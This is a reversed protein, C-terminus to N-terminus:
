GTGHALLERAHELATTSDPSGSLMRALEVVRSDPDDLTELTTVTSASGESKTVLVQHDAFAAVQPLHTVVLVQREDGLAALASGIATAATGGVGADVEDFVMTPPGASLVLRLALMVRSLEGGSAAKAIEAPAAGKNAALLFTVRSGDALATGDISSSGDASAPGDLLASGDAPRSSDAVDVSFRAGSLALEGLREEVVSGIQQAANRRQRGVEEALSEVRRRHHDIQTSLEARREDVSCLSDLESRARDAFSLVEDTSEGYKRKLDAIVKQRERIEELRESDPQVGEATSRLESVVDALEASLNALREGLEEYVARGSLETTARAVLDSAAGDAGLYGLALEGAERHAVADALLDFEEALSRDEGPVLEAGDIEDIQYRLLDITRERDRDDGGLSEREALLSRLILKESDLETTDVGGFSDLFQRQHRRSTLAQQTHQGHIEMLQASLEGLQSATTLEGNLYCRSRGTAPVIRRLVWETDDVAFLGEVVAEAAGPRVRSPDARGGSLLNLAEVVMTKGAGTEGTLATLGSRLPIRAEAIVGLDRVALEILMKTFRLRVRWARLLM